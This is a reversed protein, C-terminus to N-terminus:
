STWPSTPIPNKRQTFQVLSVSVFEIRPCDASKVEDALYLAARQRALIEAYQETHRERQLQLYQNMSKRQYGANRDNRVEKLVVRVVDIDADNNDTIETAEPKEVEMAVADAPIPPYVGSAVTGAITTTAPQTTPHASQLTPKSVASSHVSHMGACSVGHQDLQSCPDLAPNGGVTENLLCAKNRM